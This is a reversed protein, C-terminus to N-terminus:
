HVEEQRREQYTKQVSVPPLDNFLLKIIRFADRYLPPIDLSPPPAAHTYTLGKPRDGSKGVFQLSM